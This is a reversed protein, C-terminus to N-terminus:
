KPLVRLVFSRDGSVTNIAAYCDLVTDVCQSDWKVNVFRWWDNRYFWHQRLFVDDLHADKIALGISDADLPTGDCEISRKITLLLLQTKTEISADCHRISDFICQTNSACNLLDPRQYHSHMWLAVRRTVANILASPTLLVYHSVANEFVARQHDAQGVQLAERLLSTVENSPLAWLAADERPVFLVAAAPMDKVLRIRGVTAPNVVRNVPNNIFRTDVAYWTAHKDELHFAYRSRGHSIHRPLKGVVIPYKGCPPNPGDGRLGLRVQYVDPTNDLDPCPLHGPGAGTPKYSELYSASYALLQQRSDSLKRLQQSHQGDIAPQM